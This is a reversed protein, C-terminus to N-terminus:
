WYYDIQKFLSCTIMEWQREMAAPYSANKFDVVICSESSSEVLCPCCLSKSLLLLGFRSRVKLDYAERGAKWGRQNIASEPLDDNDRSSIKVSGRDEGKLVKRYCM